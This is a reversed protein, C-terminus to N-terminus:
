DSEHWVWNIIEEIINDQSGYIRYLTPVWIADRDALKMPVLMKHLYYTPM